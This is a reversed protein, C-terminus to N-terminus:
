FGIVCFESYFTGNPHVRVGRFGVSGRRRLPM